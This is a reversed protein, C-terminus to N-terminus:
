ATAAVPQQGGGWPINKLADRIEKLVAVEDKQYSACEKPFTCVLRACVRLYKKDDHKLERRAKEEDPDQCFLAIVYGAFNADSMNTTILVTKPGTIVKEHDRKVSLIYYEYLRVECNEECCQDRRGDQSMKGAEKFTNTAGEQGAGGLNISQDPGGGSSPPGYTPNSIQQVTRQMGQMTRVMVDLTYVFATLPMWLLRNMYDMTQGREM